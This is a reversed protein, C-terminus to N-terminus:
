KLEKEFICDYKCSGYEFKAKEECKAAEDVEVILVINECGQAQCKYMCGKKGKPPKYKTEEGEKVTRWIFTKKELDVIVEKTENDSEESAQIEGSAVQGSAMQLAIRGAITTDFATLPLGVTGTHELDFTAAAIGADTLVSPLTGVTGSYKFSIAGSGPDWTPTFQSTDIDTLGITVEGEPVAEERGDGDLDAKFADFRLTDAVDTVTITWREENSARKMEATATGEIEVPVEAGSAFRIKRPNPGYSVRLAMEQADAFPNGLDVVDNEAVESAPKKGPCGALAVAFASASLVVCRLPGGSVSKSHM